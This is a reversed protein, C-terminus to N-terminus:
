KKRPKRDAAAAPKELAPKRPKEAPTPEPASLFRYGGMGALGLLTLLIASSCVTSVLKGTRYSAPDFKFEITHKGAPVRMARLAYNARIHDVPQGDVYAQWGKNPGYWIESFVALQEGAADSEYTLHYPLYNTLRLASAGSTDPTFGKLYDGFEAELVVAHKAPNFDKLADIEENPTTVRWLSDVFWGNGLAQPNRQVQPEGGEGGVIFYRTNLMDLVKQNGKTMHRDILDQYRQLKAAHYGGISKHFYSVKTSNFTNDTLDMVRYNPDKDRLIEEDVPRPTFNEKYRSANVFDANNIYRRGVTWLDFTTLLALGAMMVPASLRRTIYAWILGGSLLLLALTRLADSQMLAKRDDIIANIDYGAEAYRADGSTNFDFFSPGMIWFFMSIAALVGGGIYLGRQMAAKDEDSAKVLQAVGLAGLLPLLFATVSLVSNPTRFKNYLPFYDFFLRNFAEFNSGLSLLFTLAAGGALWWKVPGKVWIAGLVALLFVVAGFYIPGSTFPLKGWYLPAPLEAPIRMGKARLDTAIASNPGVTEQSGGGAVGPIFASFLDVGGNSWQMAYDWSLGETESSSQPNGEGPANKLIPAGRMTDRSYEYTPLLNSASTGLGILGALILVGASKAFSIIEGRQIDYILQAVGLVLLTIFFYYSMQVHNSMVNVGVGLAFLLGGWLRNGKFTLLLGAAMLPLFSIARVKTNHGAEYLILNNTTLGFAIAGAISLWPSAGLAIMMIYFCIMAAAFRGIPEKTFLRTAHDVIQLFNGDKITNIQYTPMGGFMANTWLSLVGTQKRYNDVEKAMGEYQVIDGQEIVKGELQPQFYLASLAWFLLIAGVHTLIRTLKSSM